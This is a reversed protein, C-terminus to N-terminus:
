IESYPKRDFRVKLWSQTTTRKLGLLFCINYVDHKSSTIIFKYQNLLEIHQATAPRASFPSMTFYGLDILAQELPMTNTVLGLNNAYYNKVKDTVKKLIEEKSCSQDRIEKPLQKYLQIRYNKLVTTTSGVSVATLAQRQYDIILYLLPHKPRGVYLLDSDVHDYTSLAVECLLNKHEIYNKIQKHYPSPFLQSTLTAHGISRTTFVKVDNAHPMFKPSEGVFPNNSWAMGLFLGGYKYCAQYRIIDSAFAYEKNHIFAQYFSHLPDFYDFLTEIDKFECDDVTIYGNLLESRNTWIYHKLKVPRKTKIDAWQRKLKLNASKINAILEDTLASGVWVRHTIAIGSKDVEPSGKIAILRRLAEILIKYFYDSFNTKNAKSIFKEDINRSYIDPNPMTHYESEKYIFLRVQDRIILEARDEDGDFAALTIQHSLFLARSCYNHTEDPASLGYAELKESCQLLIETKNPM